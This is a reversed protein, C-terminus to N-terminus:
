SSCSILEKDSGSKTGRLVSSLYRGVSKIIVCQIHYTHKRLQCFCASSQSEATCNSTQTLFSLFRTMPRSTEGNMPAPAGSLFRYVELLDRLEFEAIQPAGVEIIENAHFTIFLCVRAACVCVCVRVCVYVCPCVPHLCVSLCVSVCVCVCVCM